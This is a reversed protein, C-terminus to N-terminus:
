VQIVKLDDAVPHLLTVLSPSLTGVLDKSCQFEPDEEEDASCCIEDGESLVSLALETSSILKM